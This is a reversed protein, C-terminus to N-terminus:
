RQESIVLKLTSTAVFLASAGRADLSASQLKKAKGTKLPVLAERPPVITSRTSTRYYKKVSACYHRERLCSLAKERPVFAKEPPVVTGRVSARYSGRAFARPM